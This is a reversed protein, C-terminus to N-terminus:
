PKRTNIKRNIFPMLSDAINKEAYYFSHHYFKDDDKIILKEIM